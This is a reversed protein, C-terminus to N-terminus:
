LEIDGTKPGPHEMGPAFHRKLSPKRGHARLDLEDGLFGSVLSRIDGLQHGEGFVSGLIRNKQNPAKQHRLGSSCLREVAQSIPEGQKAATRKLAQHLDSKVTILKRM